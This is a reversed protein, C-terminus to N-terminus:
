TEQSQLVCDREYVHRREVGIGYLQRMASVSIHEIRRICTQFDINQRQKKPYLGSYEMIDRCHRSSAGCRIRRGQGSYGQFIRGDEIKLTHRGLMADNKRLM